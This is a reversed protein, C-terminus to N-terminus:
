TWGDCGDGFISFRRWQKGLHWRPVQWLVPRGSSNRELRRKLCRSSRQHLPRPLADAPDRTSYARRNMARAMSLGQRRRTPRDLNLFICRRRQQHLLVTRSSQGSVDLRAPRMAPSVSRLRHCLPNARTHAAQTLGNNSPNGRRGGRGRRGRSGSPRLLRQLRGENVVVNNAKCTSAELEQIKDRESGECSKMSPIHPLFPILRSGKTRYRSQKM